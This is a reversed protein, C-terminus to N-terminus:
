EICKNAKKGFRWVILQLLTVNKFKLLSWINYINATPWSPNEMLPLIEGAHGCFTLTDRLLVNLGLNNTTSALKTFPLEATMLWWDFLQTFTHILSMTSHQTRSQHFVVLKKERRYQIHTSLAVLAGWMSGWLKM